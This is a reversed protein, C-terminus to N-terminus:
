VQLPAAGRQLPTSGPTPGHKSRVAGPSWATDWGGGLAPPSLWAEEWCSPFGLGAGEGDM